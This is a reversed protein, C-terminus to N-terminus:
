RYDVRTLCVLSGGLVAAHVLAFMEAHGTYLVLWAAQAAVLIGAYESARAQKPRALFLLPLALFLIGLLIGPVGLAYWLHVFLSLHSPMMSIGLWKAFELNANGLGFGFFPPTQSVVYETVYDRNFSANGFGLMSATRDILVVSYGLQFSYDAIIVMTLFLSAIGVAKRWESRGGLISVLVLVMWGMAFAFLGLLSGSLILAAIMIARCAFIAWGQKAFSFLIPAVLWQALHSPEQFSGLARHFAYTFVVSETTFDQGGTGTRTRPLEWFGIKQAAYAYIAYAAAATGLGVLMQFLAPLGSGKSLAYFALIALLFSILELYRLAVFVPYSTTALYPMGPADPWTGVTVALSYLIIILLPALYPMLRHAPLIRGPSLITYAIVFAYSLKPLPIGGVSYAGLTDFLLASFLLWRARIAIFKHNEM